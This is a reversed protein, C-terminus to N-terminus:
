QQDNERGEQYLCTEQLSSLHVPLTGTHFNLISMIKSRIRTKVLLIGGFLISLLVFRAVPPLPSPLLLFSLLLPPPVVLTLISSSSSSISFSLYIFLHRRTLMEGKTRNKKRSHLNHPLSEGAM